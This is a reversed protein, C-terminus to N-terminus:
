PQKGAIGQSDRFLLTRVEQRQFRRDRRSGIRYAYLIGQDAWRRVTNPHVALAAAVQRVTLLKPAPNDKRRAVM